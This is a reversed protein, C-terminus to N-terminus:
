SFKTRRQQWCAMTHQTQGETAAKLIFEAMYAKIGPTIENAPIQSMAEDFTARMTHILEPSYSPMM